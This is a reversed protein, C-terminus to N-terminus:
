LHANLLDYTVHAACSFCLGKCVSTTITKILAGICTGTELADDSVHMWCGQIMGGGPLRARYEPRTSHASQGRIRGARQDISKEVQNQIAARKVEKLFDKMADHNKVDIHEAVQVMTEDVKAKRFDIGQQCV